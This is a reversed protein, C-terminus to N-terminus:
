LSGEVAIKPGRCRLPGTTFGLLCAVLRITRKLHVGAPRLAGRARRRPHATGEMVGEVLARWNNDIRAFARSAGASVNKLGNVM